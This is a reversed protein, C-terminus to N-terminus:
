LFNLLPIQTSRFFVSNQGLPYDQNKGILPRLKDDIEIGCPVQGCLKKM